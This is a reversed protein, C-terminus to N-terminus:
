QERLRQLATAYHVHSSEVGTAILRLRNAAPFIPGSGCCADLVRDGPICSRRLLDVYLDVPKAAAHLTSDGGAKVIVDLYVGTVRKDGRRAFLITEYSKRPGRTSDGLNGGGPKHWIIPTPWVDWGAGKALGTLVGWHRFDCFMYLHAEDKCLRAGELFITQWIGYAYEFTDKYEHKVGSQSGSMPAMLHADIGYPPDVLICNFTKDPLAILAIDVSAHVLTHPTQAKSVDFNRALKEQFTQVMKKRAISLAERQTGAKAVDPDTLFPRLITANRVDTLDQPTIPTDGKLEQATATFTQKEGVDARQASRYEHLRAIADTKDRWSLDIRHINEDLEAEYLSAESLDHRFTVPIHGPQILTGNHYFPVTIRSIARLRREGAVLRLTDRDSVVIANLLGKAAIESAFKDLLKEDFERRQRNPGVTISSVPVVEM